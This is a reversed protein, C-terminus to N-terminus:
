WPIVYGRSPEPCKAEETGPVKRWYLRIDLMVVPNPDLFAAKMLGKM